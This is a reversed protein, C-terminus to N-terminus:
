PIKWRTVKLHYFIIVHMCIYMSNTLTAFFRHSPIKGVEKRKTLHGSNAFIIPHFWERTRNPELAVELHKLNLISKSNGFSIQKKVTIRSASHILVIM